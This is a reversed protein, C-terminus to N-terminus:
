ELDPITKPAAEIHCLTFARMHRAAEQWEPRDRLLAVKEFSTRPAKLLIRRAGESLHPALSHCAPCLVGGMNADFRCEGSVERGCRVCQAMSPSQGLIRMLHMEFAFTVLPEPLDSYALHALTVLSLAFLEQAPMDSQAVISLMGLVYSAHTLKDLDSRLPYYSETVNGEVVTYRGHVPMITYEGAAFLESAGLLPSKNKRCGRAIADVKGMEPTLLTLMRDSDRYESHRLVLGNTVIM